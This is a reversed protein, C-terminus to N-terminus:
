LQINFDIKKVNLVRLFEFSDNMMTRITKQYNPIM